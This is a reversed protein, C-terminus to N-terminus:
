SAACRYLCCVAFNSILSCQHTHQDASNNNMHCSVCNRFTLSLCDVLQQSLYVFFLSVFVFHLMMECHHFQVFKNFVFLGFPLSQEGSLWCTMLINTYTRLYTFYKKASSAGPAYGIQVGPVHNAPNIYPVVLCQQMSFICAKSNLGQPKLSSSKKM